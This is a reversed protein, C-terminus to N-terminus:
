YGREKSKVQELHALLLREFEELSYEQVPMEEDWMNQVSVGDDTIFVSFANGSELRTQTGDAQIEHIISLFRECRFLSSVDTHLFHKFPSSTVEAFVDRLRKLQEPDDNMVLRRRVEM